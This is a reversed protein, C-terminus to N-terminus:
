RWWAWAPSAASPSRPLQSRKALQKRFEALVNQQHTVERTMDIFDLIIIGGLNRLRLQRAIAGGAESTPRSSRRTSTARAVVFGGTNVADITTLARWTQLRHDTYGGSKPDVRRALAM